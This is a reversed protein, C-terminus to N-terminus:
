KSQSSKLLTSMYKTCIYSPHVHRHEGLNTASPYWYHHLFELLFGSFRHAFEYAIHKVDEEIEM